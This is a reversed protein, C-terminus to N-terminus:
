YIGNGRDGGKGLDKKLKENDVLHKQVAQTSQEALLEIIDQRPQLM